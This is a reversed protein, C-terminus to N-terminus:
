SRWGMQRAGKVQRDRKLRTTPTGNISIGFDAAGPTGFDWYKGDGPQLAPQEFPQGNFTISQVDVIGELDMLSQVIPSLFLYGGPGLREARLLGGGDAPTPAAYLAELAAAAVDSPVRDADVLVQIALTARQSQSPHVRIPADPESLGRLKARIDPLLQPDGIYTIVAAPQLGAEDMRWTATAARVGPVAATAAQLDLLSIARGLLLASRPAGAALERPSEADAGGYAPLLNKVKKLGAVPKALQTVAGAPPQAAGAGFRYEALIPAATGARAGGGFTVYTEGEDDHRVIYVQDDSTAGFFTPVERWLVGGVRVRLTSAYGIANPASLYTLPKKKLKFTQTAQSGNGAGLVEGKVSEGRSVELVNGHLKLPATLSKDWTTPDLTAAHTTANLTGRAELGEQHVDELLVRGLPVRPTDVLTPLGIPDGPDLTEKLPALVKAGDSLSHYLTIKDVDAASWGLPSDLSVRSISITIDPSKLYREVTSGDAELVQSTLTALAVRSTTSVTTAHRAELLSGKEFLLVEGPKLATLSELLVTQGSIAPTTDGGLNGAQWLRASIGPALVRLTDYRAGSPPEIFSTFRLELASAGRRPVPHLGEVRAALLTGNFSLVVADGKKVRASGPKVLLRDFDESLTTASVPSIPLENVRPDLTTAQTLEFVQPPQKQQHEDRFESSRFATGVPLFTTKVGDTTAALLVQSAVAPRPRYGLLGVLERQAGPLAATRLYTEGSIVGDYFSVVDAVYAGMEVLMLGMDHADRARWADLATQRGAADLMSQRWEPFAGLTRAPRFFVESLGAPIALGEPFLNQCPCEQSNM